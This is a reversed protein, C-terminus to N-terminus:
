RSIRLERMEGGPLRYRLTGSVNRAASPPTVQMSVDISGASIHKFLWKVVSSNRIQRASPSASVLQAGPPLYQELIMNQPAPSSITLRLRVTDGSVGLYRASVPESAASDHPLCLQFLVSLLLAAMAVYCHHAQIPIRRHSKMRPETM